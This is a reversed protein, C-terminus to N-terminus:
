FRYTFGLRYVLPLSTSQSSANLDYLLSIESSAITGSTYGLGVLFQNDGFRETVIKDFNANFDIPYVRNIYSLEVHAFLIRVFKARAFIGAGYDFGNFKVVPTNTYAQYRGNTYQIEFRPGVSFINNLKYGIMPSLGISFTSGALNGLGSNFSLGFGAGYWLHDTFTVAVKEPAVKKSRTSVQSFAPLTLIFLLCLLILKSIKFKM